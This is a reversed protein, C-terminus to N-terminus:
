MTTIVVVVGSPEAGVLEAAAAAVTGCANDNQVLYLGIFGIHGVGGSGGLVLAVVVFVLGCCVFLFVFLSSTLIISAAHVADFDPPLLDPNVVDHSLIHYLLFSLFSFPPFSPTSFALLPLLSFDLEFM